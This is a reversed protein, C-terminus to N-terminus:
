AAMGSSRLIRGSRAMMRVMWSYLSFRRTGLCTAQRSLPSKAPKRCSVLSDPKELQIYRCFTVYSMIISTDTGELPVMMHFLVQSFPIDGFINKTWILLYVLMVSLIIFSVSVICKWIKIGKEKKEVKDGM